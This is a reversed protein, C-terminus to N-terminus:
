YMEMWRCEDNCKSEADGGQKQCMEKCVAIGPTLFCHQELSSDARLTWGRNLEVVRRYDVLRPPWPGQTTKQSDVSSCIDM